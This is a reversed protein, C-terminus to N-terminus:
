TGARQSFPDSPVLMTVGSSAAPLYASRPQNMPPKREIAIPKIALMSVEIRANHQLRPEDTIASKKSPRLGILQLQDYDLVTETM